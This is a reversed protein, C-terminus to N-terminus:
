WKFVALVLLGAAILPPLSIGLSYIIGRAPALDDTIREPETHEIPKASTIRAAREAYFLLQPSAM